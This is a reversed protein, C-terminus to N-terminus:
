LEVQRILLGALTHLQATRDALIHEVKRIGAPLHRPLSGLWRRAPRRRRRWAGSRDASFVPVGTQAHFALRIRLRPLTFFFRSLATDDDEKKQEQQGPAARSGPYEGAVHDAGVQRGDQSV